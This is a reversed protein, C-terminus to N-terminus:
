RGRKQGKKIITISDSGSLKTGDLLELELAVEVVDGDNVEGLADALQQTFFLMIFDEIGDRIVECDEEGEEDCACPSGIDFWGTRVPSVGAFTASMRDIDQVDLEASGYVFVPVVGRSGINVPNKCSGPKVDVDLPATVVIVASSVDDSVMPPSVGVDIDPVARDYVAEVSAIVGPYDDFLVETLLRYSMEGTRAGLEDVYKKTYVKTRDLTGVFDAAPDSANVWGAVTDNALTLGGGLYITKYKFFTKEPPSALLTVNNLYAGEVAYDDSVATIENGPAGEAGGWLLEAWMGPDFDGDASRYTGLKPGGASVVLPAALVVVMVAWIWKKM